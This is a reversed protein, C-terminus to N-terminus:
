KSGEKAEDQKKQAFFADVSAQSLTLSMAVSLKVEALGISQISPVCNADKMMTSLTILKIDDLTITQINM